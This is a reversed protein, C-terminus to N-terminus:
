MLIALVSLWINLTGTGSAVYHVYINGSEDALVPRVGGVVTNNPVGALSLPPHQM